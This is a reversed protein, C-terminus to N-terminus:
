TTAILEEDFGFRNPSIRLKAIQWSAQKTERIKILTHVLAHQSEIGVTVKQICEHPLRLFAAMHGNFMRLQAFHDETQPASESFCNKKYLLLRLEEEHAWDNGKSAALKKIDEGSLVRSDAKKFIDVRESHNYEVPILAKAETRLKLLPGKEFDLTLMLGSHGGGYQAWMRINNPYNSLSLFYWPNSVYGKMNRWHHTENAALEQPLFEFPDNVLMPSSLKIEEDWLIRVADSTCYYYFSTKSAGAQERQVNQIWTKLEVLDDHSLLQIQEKIEQINM